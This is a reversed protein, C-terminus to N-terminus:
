KPFALNTVKLKSSCFQKKIVEWRIANDQWLLSCFCTALNIIIPEMRTVRLAWCPWLQLGLTVPLSSWAGARYFLAEHSTCAAWEEKPARSELRGRSLELALTGALCGEEKENNVKRQSAKRGKFGERWAEGNQFACMRQVGDCM